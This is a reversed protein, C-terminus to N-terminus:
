HPELFGIKEKSDGTFRVRGLKSAEIEIVPGYKSNTSQKVIRDPHKLISELMKQGQANIRTPNGTPKPFVSGKRYGHKMLSRGAKTYGARDAIKGADLLKKISSIKLSSKVAAKSALQEAVRVTEKAGQKTLNAAAGAM